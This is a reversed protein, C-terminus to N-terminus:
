RGAARHSAPPSGGLAALATEPAAQRRAAGAAFPGRPGDARGAQAASAAAGPLRQSAGLALGTRLGLLSAHRLVDIELEDHSIRYSIKPPVNAPWERGRCRKSSPEGCSEGTARSQYCAM